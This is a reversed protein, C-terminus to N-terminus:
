VIRNKGATEARAQALMGKKDKSDLIGEYFLSNIQQELQRRSWTGAVTEKEYFQRAKKNEIQMLVRYHSWSLDPHFGNGTELPDGVPHGTAQLKFPDGPPHGMPVLRDPYDQYFAKFYKLNTSSSGKGYQAQLKESLQELLKQGYQARKEGAQLAEFIEREKEDWIKDVLESKDM